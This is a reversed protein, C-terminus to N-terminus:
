LAKPCQFQELAALKFPNIVSSARLELEVARGGLQWTLTFRDKQPGSTLLGLDMLRFWAWPGDTAYGGRGDAAAPLYSIRAQSSVRGGPWQFAAPRAPGHEYTLTQGDIDLTFQTLVPDMSVPKLEFRVTPTKGGGPFFADRIEAARQFQVLVAPSIGLSVNDIPRWRWPKTSMDVYPLLNTQFFSDILGGPAFVRGFDEQTIEQTADRVLPYRGDVAQQCYSAVNASWLANLRGRESGLTLAAGTQAVGQLVAGVPAPKGEAERKLKDLADGSPAPAGQRRASNAADLYVFAENMLALSQDLPAAGGSGATVMARLSAFHSSVPDLPAAAASTAADSVGLASELRQRVSGGAEKKLADAAKGPGGADLATEQAVATLLRKLPSDAQSLLNTVRAAQDLNAMPAVGIDGLLRDWQQISDAYYLDLVQAKLQLASAPDTVAEDRGLIWNDQVVGAVAPDLAAVFKAYGARTYLGPVGRTLPDGSIRRFVLAADRGGAAAISFDPLALARPLERKMRAYVRQPLPIRALTARTADVLGADLTVPEAQRLQALLAGLHGNLSKRQDDSVTRGLSRDWDYSAWAAVADPDLHRTNGLMLYVRLLEYQYEPNGGARLADELRVILRPLMIQRLLRQYLDIGASGLKDGQYLGWGMSWPAGRDRDAYGGPIDRAADLLPLLGPLPADAPLNRAAEGIDNVRASVDAIYVKNRVYSTTLAAGALLLVVAAAAWGGRQLWRRHREFRLDSGALGAERFVVDRLLRTLFYSRGSAANSAIAQRDVGFTAALAGMVRDIPSGEQTGSTFYVGRLMANAEYRSSLFVDNLFGQLVEGVAAFQQPFGYILAKRRVDREQQMRALVGAEIRQELAKIEQPLGALLGDVKGTEILPLTHGWVQAREDRGLGDFFEVFGAMLDCKTVLVYIPFRIGLQEHLEKIRARIARAQEEREAASQRLLDSVSVAVIVGNIPRRRRHKKLLALFGEWAAKDAQAHSDQTTYRGATDLLVAEDAFWWDCNRTGGVGRMAGEGLSAALPFKLGSHILATTKGAGPAGVFMYWPTQYLYQSGLRKGGREKRLVTLADQFRQDLLGVEAESQEAASTGAASPAAATATATASEGAVAQALRANAMRGALWRVTWYMAWVAFIICIAVWRRFSSELPASGDFALLPAEYWIILALAACGLLSLVWARGLCNFIRKM